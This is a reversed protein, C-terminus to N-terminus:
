PNYSRSILERTKAKRTYNAGDSTVRWEDFQRVLGTQFGFQKSEIVPTNLHDTVVQLQACTFTGAETSVDVDEDNVKLYTYTDWDSYRWADNKEFDDDWLQRVKRMVTGEKYWIFV